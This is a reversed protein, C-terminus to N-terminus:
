PSQYAANSHIGLVRWVFGACHRETTRGDWQFILHCLLNKLRGEFPFLLCYSLPRKSHAIVDGGILPATETPSADDRQKHKEDKFRQM